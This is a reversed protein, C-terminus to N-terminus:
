RTKGARERTVVADEPEPPMEANLHAGNYLTVDFVAGSKQRKFGPLTFRRGGDAVNFEIQRELHTVASISDFGSGVAYIDAGSATRLWRDFHPTTIPVPGTPLDVAKPGAGGQRITVSNAGAALAAALDEQRASLTLVTTGHVKLTGGDTNRFKSKGIEAVVEKDKNFNEGRIIVQVDDGSAAGYSAGELGFEDDWNRILRPVGVIAATMLVAVLVYAGVILRFWSRFWRDRESVSTGVIDEVEKPTLWREFDKRRGEFLGKSDLYRQWASVLGVTVPFAILYVTYITTGFRFVNVGFPTKFIAAIFSGVVVGVAALMNDILTKSLAQVQENYSRATKEVAEELDKVRTFYKELRGHVFSDWGWEVRKKVEVAQRALERCNVAPDSEQLSNAIVSQLVSLRDKVDREGGYAWAAVDAIMKSAGWPNTSGSKLAECLEAVDGVNFRALYKDAAFTALWLPSRASRGVGTGNTREDVNRIAHGAIYLLSCALLQAYVASVVPDETGPGRGDPTPESEVTLHLPTLTALDFNAWKLAEKAQERFYKVKVTDPTREAAHGAWRSVAPGGLVVLFQGKLVLENHSPALIIVKKDRNFARLLGRRENTLLDLQVSLLRVLAETFLFLIVDAASTNVIGWHRLLAVKDIKLRLDVTPSDKAQRYFEDLESPHYDASLTFVPLQGVKFELTLAPGYKELLGRLVEDLTAKKTTWAADDQPAVVERPFASDTYSLEDAWENLHLVKAEIGLARAFDELPRTPDAWKEPMHTIEEGM